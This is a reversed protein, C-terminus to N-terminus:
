SEVPADIPIKRPRGRRKPEAVPPLDSAAADSIATPAVAAAETTISPPLSFAPPLVGIDLRAEGDDADLNRKVPQARPRRVVPRVTSPAPADVVAEPRAKPQPATAQPAPSQARNGRDEDGYDRRIRSERPRDERPRSERPQEERPREDRSGEERPQTDRPQADRQETNRQPQERPRDDRQYTRPRDERPRDERPRDDRPRDDRPRDERARNDRPRDENARGDNSRAERQQPQAQQQPQQQQPVRQPQRFSGAFDDDEDDQGESGDEGEFGQDENGFEQRARSPNNEEYRARTESLVRFYHDAFQLYYETLVRDGAQQADRALTKYKELLQAANGRTRNDIRNGSEPGRGSGSSSSNGGTGNQRQGGRGRRRGSQQRNNILKFEDKALPKLVFGATGGTRDYGFRRVILSKALSRGLCFGTVAPPLTLRM